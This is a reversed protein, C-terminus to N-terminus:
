GISHVIIARQPPKRGVDQGIAFVPGKGEVSVATLGSRSIGAPVQTEHWAGAGWRWARAVHHRGGTKVWGVATVKTAFVGALDTVVGAARLGKTPVRSWNGADNAVIVRKGGKGNGVLWVQQGVMTGIRWNVDDPLGNGSAAAWTTNGQM